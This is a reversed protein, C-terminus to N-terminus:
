KQDITAIAPHFGKDNAQGQGLLLLNRGQNGEMFNINFTYFIDINLM